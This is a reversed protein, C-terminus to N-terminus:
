KVVEVVDGEKLLTNGMTVMLEGESLGEIVEFKNNEHLGTEIKRQHVKNDDKVIFVYISSGQRIMADRSIILANEKKKILIKVRAFIGPKLKYDSNPIKIEVLATRSALDVVPSVRDVIGEFIEGPYADVKIEAAQGVKVKPLDKEVVDVKVKVVDMNVVSGVPTQPSVSMGVDIYVRGVFGDIPSEVPSKEFQFGVKDRDIYALVDGRKVADGERALKEIIKGTVKPYVIAEDEAKIDGVYFLTQKLDGRKIETVRVPVKVLKEKVEKRGCGTFLICSTFILICFSLAFNLFKSKQNINKIKSKYKQNKIKNM